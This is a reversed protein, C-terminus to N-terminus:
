KQSIINSITKIGFWLWWSMLHAAWGTLHSKRLLKEYHWFQTEKIKEANHDSLLWCFMLALMVRLWCPVDFGRSWCFFVKLFSWKQRWISLRQMLLFVLSKKLGVDELLLRSVAFLQDASWIFWLKVAQISQLLDMLMNTLLETTTQHFTHFVSGTFM